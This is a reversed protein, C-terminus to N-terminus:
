IHNCLHLILMAFHLFVYTIITASDSTTTVTHTTTSARTLPIETQNGPTSHVTTSSTTTSVPSTSASTTSGPTTPATTVTIETQNIPTSSVTTNSAATSAPTTPIKSGPPSCQKHVCIYDKPCRSCSTGRLYPLGMQRNDRNNFACGVHGLGINKCFKKACGVEWSEATVAQKYNKRAGKCANTCYHYSQSNNTLFIADRFSPQSSFKSFIFGIGVFEPYAFDSPYKAICRHVWRAAKREM